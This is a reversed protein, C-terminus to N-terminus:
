HSDQITISYILDLEERTVIERIDKEVQPKNLYAILQKREAASLSDM